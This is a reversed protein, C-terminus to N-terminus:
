LSKLFTILQGKQADTLGIFANTVAIAEGQHRLIAQTFTLAEGDHML